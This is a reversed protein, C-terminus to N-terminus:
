TASSGFIAAMVADGIESSHRYVDEQRSEYIAKTIRERMAALDAPVCPIALFPDDNPQVYQDSTLFRNFGAGNVYRWVPVGLDAQEVLRGPEAQVRTGIDM